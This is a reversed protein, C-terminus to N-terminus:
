KDLLRMCESRIYVSDAKICLTVGDPSAGATLHRPYLRREHWEQHPEDETQEAYTRESDRQPQPV